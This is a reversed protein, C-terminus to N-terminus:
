PNDELKSIRNIFAESDMSLAKITVEENVM